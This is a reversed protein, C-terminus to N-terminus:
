NQDRIGVKLLININLTIICNVGHLPPSYIATENIRNTSNDIHIRNTKRPFRLMGALQGHTPWLLPIIM